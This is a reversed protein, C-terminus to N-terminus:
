KAGPLSVTVVGGGNASFSHVSDGMEHDNDEFFSLLVRTFLEGADLYAYHGANKFVILASNVIKKRLKKAMYIPTDRDENGWILLTPLTIKKLEPTLDENVINKFTQKDIDSLKRYDESGGVNSVGLATLLRHWYVKGYYRLGRRPLVGASDCLVIKDLLRGYESALRIAVRGGFSHAVLIVDNMKYHNIIEVVAKAYDEVFLPKEKRPSRGFGYFDLLTVRYYPSITKAVGLFSLTSGGWGHLFLVDQGKGFQM